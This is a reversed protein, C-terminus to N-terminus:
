QFYYYELRHGHMSKPGSVTLRCDVLGTPTPFSYRLTAAGARITNGDILRTSNRDAQCFYLGTREGGVSRGFTDSSQTVANEDARRTLM